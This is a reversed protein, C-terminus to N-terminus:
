RSTLTDEVLLARPPDIADLLPVGVLTSLLANTWQSWSRGPRRVIWPMLRMGQAHLVTRAHGM